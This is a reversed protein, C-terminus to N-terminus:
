YFFNYNRHHNNSINSLLYLFSKLNHYNSQFKKDDLITNFIEYNEEEDNENTLFDLFKDEINKMREVYEEISM